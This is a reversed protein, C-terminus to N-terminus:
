AGKSSSTTTSMWSMRGQSAFLSFCRLWASFLPLHFCLFFSPFTLFFPPSGTLLHTHTPSLPLPSADACWRVLSMWLTWTCSPAHWRISRSTWTSACKRMEPHIWLCSQNWTRQCATAHCQSHTFSHTLTHTFTHTLSHSPLGTGLREGLRAELM